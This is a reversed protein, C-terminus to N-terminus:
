FRAVDPHTVIVAVPEIGTHRFIYTIKVFSVRQFRRVSSSIRIQTDFVIFTLSKLIVDWNLCKNM